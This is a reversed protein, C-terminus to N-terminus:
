SISITVPEKSDQIMQLLPSFALKSAGLWDSKGDWTSGVLICGETDKSSNGTHIRVGSFGPVDALLPLKVQFRQSMTVSINYTGKPIATQGMIKWSSVPENDIERYTDELSYCIFQGNLFIKGVTFKDAFYNRKLELHM